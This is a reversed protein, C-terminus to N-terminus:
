MVVDRWSDAWDPIQIYTGKINKWQYDDFSGDLYDTADVSDRWGDISDDYVIYANYVIYEYADSYILETINRLKIAEIADAYMGDFVYAKGDSEAFLAEGENDDLWSMNYYFEEMDDEYYEPNENYTQITTASAAMPFQKNYLLDIIFQKAENKSGLITVDTKVGSEPNRLSIYPMSVASKRSLPKKPCRPIFIGNKVMENMKYKKVDDKKIDKWNVPKKPKKGFYYIGNDDLGIDNYATKSAVCATDESISLILRETPELKGNRYKKLNNRISKTIKVNHVVFIVGCIM